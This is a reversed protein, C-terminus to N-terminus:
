IKSKLLKKELSPFRFPNRWKLFIEGNTNLGFNKSLLCFFAAEWDNQTASLVTQIVESKRELREFFLREKWNQFIFQPISKIENECYIWSKSAKLKQYQYVLNPAVYKKIEFVPIESNDKRFIETDHEWVVHLIVNDYNKDQEHHHLYWDSSKVHIEVNGAWKQNDIVIQANFFDPGAQQLYDGIRIITLTEKNTTQLNTFDFKKYLWVHHLFDEKM